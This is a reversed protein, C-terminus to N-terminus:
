KQILKLIIQKLTQYAQDSILAPKKEMQAKFKQLFKTAQQEAGKEDHYQYLKYANTLQKALPHRIEGSSILEELVIGFDDTTVFQIHYIQKLGDEATVEIKAETGEQSITVISKESMAEAAIAPLDENAPLTVVYEKQNPDFNELSKGDLTLSSLIANSDLLIEKEVPNWNDDGALVKEPMYAMAEELTLQKTWSYREMAEGSPGSNAFEGYRATSENESNGWNNWGHPKIHEGMWTQIYVVNSYPRWPRGLEVSDIMGEEATLKSNYFVYGINTKKTSAATVYGADRSHIISHDFVATADGFIFDVDGSIYSDVYYQRVDDTALLTDQWGILRVNRYIQRDGRASLAVAQATDNGSDNEITLNEAIFDDAQVLVSYSDSTGIEEGDPGITKANDDYILITDEPGNGQGILSINTKKNPIKIKERYVGAGIQIVIRSRNHDPVADIAAQVTQYDGSGDKAVKIVEAATGKVQISSYGIGSENVAHIVYDYEKGNQLSKDTFVPETLEEGVITYPQDSADRRKVIYYDANEVAQWNLQLEGDEINHINVQKPMNPKGDDAKPKVAIAQSELSQTAKNKATIVYYYPKGNVLEKDEYTTGKVTKLLQFTGQDSDKRKVEYVTAGEVAEWSLAVSRDKEKATVDVPMSLSNIPTVALEESPLSEGGIHKASLVYYYTRGNVLGTDTYSTKTIKENIVQYPGSPKTARRLVYSNANEVPEWQLNVQTDRAVSTINEPTGPLEPTDTPTVEIEEPFESEGKEGNSTVVYYYTTGNVLETDVYTTDNIDSAITVFAEGSAERRKVNYSLAGDGVEWFLQVKENGSIARLGEPATTPAPYVKINDFYLHGGGSGPTASAIRAIGDESFDDLFAVEEAVLEGDIYIDVTSTVTNAIIKFHYWQHDIPPDTLKVYAGNDSYVFTYEEEGAPKRLELSLATKNGEANKLQFFKSTGAMRPQMFDFETTITGNQQQFVKQATVNTGGEDHLKMAKESDNGISTPPVEAVMVKNIDNQPDPGIQYDEPAKNLDLDEFHDDIFPPDQSPTAWATFPISSLVLVFVLLCLWIKKM